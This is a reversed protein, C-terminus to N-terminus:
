CFRKGPLDVWHPQQTALIPRHQQVWQLVSLNSDEGARNTNQINNAVVGKLENLGPRQAPQDCLCQAVLQRLKKDMRNFRGSLLYAGYSWVKVTGTATTTSRSRGKSPRCNRVPSRSPAPWSMEDLICTADKATGSDGLKVVPVYHHLDFQPGIDNVGVFLNLPDIYFHIMGTGYRTPGENDWLWEDDSDQGPDATAVPSLSPRKPSVRERFPQGGDFTALDWQAEMASSLETWASVDAVEPLWLPPKQENCVNTAEATTSESLSAEEPSRKVVWGFMGVVTGDELRIKRLAERGDTTAHEQYGIRWRIYEARWRVLEDEQKESVEVGPARPFAMHFLPHNKHAPYDIARALYEADEVCVPEITRRHPRPHPANAHSLPATAM